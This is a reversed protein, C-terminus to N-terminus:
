SYPQAVYTSSLLVSQLELCISRCLIRLGAACQQPELAPHPGAQLPVHAMRRHAKSWDSLASAVYTNMNRLHM